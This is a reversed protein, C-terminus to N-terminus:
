KGLLAHDLREALSPLEVSVASWVIDLNVDFYAHVLRNRMGIIDDWPIEGLRVRTGDTVKTAAEGIIEIEKLRAMVLMRDRDLDARIRGAAFQLAERSADLM